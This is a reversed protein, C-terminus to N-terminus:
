RRLTYVLAHYLATLHLGDMLFIALRLFSSLSGFGFSFTCLLTPFRSGYQRRTSVATPNCTGTAHHRTFLARKCEGLVLRYQLNKGWYMIIMHARKFFRYQHMVCLVIM